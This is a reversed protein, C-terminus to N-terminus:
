PDVAQVQDVIGRKSGVDGNPHAHYQGPSRWRWELASTWMRLARSRGGLRRMELDYLFM